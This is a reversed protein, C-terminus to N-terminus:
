RNQRSEGFACDAFLKDRQETILNSVLRYRDSPVNSPREASLKEMVEGLRESACEVGVGKINFDLGYVRRSNKGLHATVVGNIVQCVTPEDDIYKVRLQCTGNTRDCTRQIAVPLDYPSLSWTVNREDRQLTVVPPSQVTVRNRKSAEAETTIM